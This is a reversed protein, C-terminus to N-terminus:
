RPPSLAPVTLRQIEIPAIRLEQMQPLPRMVIPAVAISDQEHVPPVIGVPEGEAALREASAASVRDRRPGFIAESRAMANRAPRSAPAPPASLASPAVPASKDAPAKALASLAVSASTDTPAKAFASPTQAIEVPTQRWRGGVVAVIIMLVAAASVVEWSGWTWLTRPRSSRELRSLVRRRL